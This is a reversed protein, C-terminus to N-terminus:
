KFLLSFSTSWITPTDINKIVWKWTEHENCVSLIVNFQLNLNIENMSSNLEGGRLRFIKLDLYSGISPSWSYLIPNDDRATSLCQLQYKIGGNKNAHVHQNQISQHNQLLLYYNFNNLYMNLTIYLVRTKSILNVM